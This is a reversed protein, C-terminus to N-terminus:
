LKVRQLHFIGGLYECLGELSRNPETVAALMTYHSTIRSEFVFEFWVTTKWLTSQGNQDFSNYLKPSAGYTMLFFITLASVTVHDTRLLWNTFINTQRLDSDNTHRLLIHTSHCITGPLQLLKASRLTPEWQNSWYSFSSQHGFSDPSCTTTSLSPQRNVTGWLCTFGDQLRYLLKDAALPPKWVNLWFPRSILM